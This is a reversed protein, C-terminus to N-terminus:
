HPVEAYLGTVETDSFARGFAQVEDISGAWYDTNGGAYKARGIALPGTSVEATGATVTAQRVGDVYLRQENGARVGVLHYWRGLQPTVVYRARKGGPTSFAFAGQGYQLYFPNETRRGDQSVATAYNGPLKDLTVWASITYDGRTDLVPSVTEAFDGNGDFRLAQGRIGAVWATNDRLAVDSHGNTTDHGVTGSGEDLPWSGLGPFTADEGAKAGAAIVRLNIERVPGPDVKLVRRDYTYFGNLENELDTVQTYISGSLEAGAAALYYTQTNEVYKRTLAAKDAVGSYIVTPAGPWMHGPTRLTFGGHEGDMAARTLDPYPPSNNGYDHHDIVDGRGSDGKSDCCNVGSHANIVRSPDAAKVQDAIRGTEERNWEGWGENFIVWIAISPSNHLQEMMRLGESFFAQQGETNTITGSVFDQWVLLGLQDAHYYWRAPEVKIHKRVSNFGLDKQVQLDWRLAADTPATNLGDPWFGQDLMALSFVPKGNLVLKPFGGVNQIGVSRMGFYSGVTDTSQGETLTVDLKYLYPDDPTWLHPKEVPLTLRTNAKGTITGVVNGDTDRAVATVSADPSASASRAEVSLTGTQIDPTTVLGDIAVNPVPELWVTQWIGSSPTYFIGGPRSSQKGRPQNAGTTDTVAVFIEQEGSGSLASTIDATFATYGGRHEAVQKGNVWVRAHYDVAGFNLLLRQGAGIRWSEPVTVLKRYFMHDEHRELGSLQSEVPFPVIISEPLKKGFVPQQGAAAGAFEWPGNLNLWQERVQQPRPYEPLPHAPDVQDAWETRLRQTSGNIAYRILKPVEEGDLRLGAAGDYSVRVRQGRLAPESLTVEVTSPNNAAIAASTLPVPVTDVEVVLHPVLDGLASVTKAFDLTLRRGDEGVSLSVPYVEFDAPPTFATTPVLQKGLTASSWRLFINAGGVDQFMELRFDHAEGAVLHVPESNKEVDWVDPNWHDIVPKGDLFLRFGNDGIASFTYDGTEPATIRGTWRATTNESRGVLTQFMSELGPFDINPELVVAGLQAFDRVKPASMRFYEGKLGHVEIPTSADPTSADPTSADPTSADPTSADPPPPTCGILPLQVFALSLLVLALPRFKPRLM